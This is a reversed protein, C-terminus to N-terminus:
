ARISPFGISGSTASGTTPSLPERLRCTRRRLRPKSWRRPFCRGGPMPLLGIMAPFAVLMIRSEGVLARFSEVLRQIQGCANMANSLVLIGGVLIMLFISEVSDVGAVAAQLYAGPGMTFLVGLCVSGALLSLGIHLRLGQLVLIAALVIGVRVLAPIAELIEM